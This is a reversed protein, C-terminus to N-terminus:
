DEVALWDDDLDSFIEPGLIIPKDLMAPNKPMDGYTITIHPDYTPFSHVAGRNILQEHRASLLPSKFRLVKAPGFEDLMLLESPPIVLSNMWPKGIKRLDVNTNCYLVTVHLDLLVTQFGNAKAWNKVDNRNLVNRQIYLSM